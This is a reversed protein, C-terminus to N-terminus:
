FEITEMGMYVFSCSTGLKWCSFPFPPTLTWCWSPSLSASAECLEHSSYFLRLGELFVWTEFTIFVINGAVVYAELVSQLILKRQKGFISVWPVQKPKMTDGDFMFFKPWRINWSKVGQLAVAPRRLRLQYFHPPCPIFLSVQSCKVAPAPESHWSPSCCPALLCM